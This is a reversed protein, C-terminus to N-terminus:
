EAQGAISSKLFEEKTNEGFKLVVINEQEGFGFVTGIMGGTTIVRDGKKLESIMIQQKKQRKQQPRILLFYIVAFMLALMIIMGMGGGAGDGQPAGLGL